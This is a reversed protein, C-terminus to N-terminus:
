KDKITTKVAKLLEEKAEMFCENDIWNIARLMAFEAYALDVELQNKRSTPQNAPQM